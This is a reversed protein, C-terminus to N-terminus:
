NKVILADCIVTVIRTNERHRWANRLVGLMSGSELAWKRGEISDIKKKLVSRGNETYLANEGWFSRLIEYYDNIEMLKREKSLLKRLRFEEKGTNNNHIRHQCLEENMQYFGGEEAARAAFLFDHPIKDSAKIQQSWGRRCCMTMGPWECKYFVEEISVNRIQEEQRGRKVHTPNMVSKIRQGDADILGFKCCVSRAEPHAELACCMQEIKTFNWIDDQDALFIVDQTCLSCAYYFIRPYGKHAGQYLKWRSELSHCHIFETICEVTSDTSGDDCIIVEDPAKSQRLISELQQEIYKEGNYAAICVSVTMLRDDDREAYNELTQHM